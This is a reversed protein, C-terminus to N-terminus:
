ILGADRGHAIAEKRNQAGLKRHVNRVHTKLTNVSIDLSAAIQRNDLNGSLLRLVAREQKSRTEAENTSGREPRNTRGM